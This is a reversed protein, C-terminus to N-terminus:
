VSRCGALCLCMERVLELPVGSFTDRIQQELEDFARLKSQYIKRKAQRRLVLDHPIIRVERLGNQQDIALEGVLSIVAL